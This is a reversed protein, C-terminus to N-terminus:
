VAISRMRATRGRKAAYPSRDHRMLRARKGDFACLQVVDVRERREEAAIELEVFRGEIDCAHPRKQAIADCVFRHDKESTTIPARQAERVGRGDERRELLSAGPHELIEEDREVNAARANGGRQECM